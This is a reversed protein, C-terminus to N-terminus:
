NTEYGFKNLWREAVNNIFKIDNEDLVSKWGGHKGQRMFGINEAFDRGGYDYKMELTKMREFSSSAIADALIREDIEFGLHRYTESLTNQPSSKLNEYRIYIFRTEIPSCDFWGSVHDCWANIGLNPSRIFEKIGGSYNGFTSLFNFYSVLVDRPDRVVYIVNKYNLNLVSHSKIMRSGPFPLADEKIKRTFHVDPILSHINYFTVERDIGSMKLNINALLFDMWTAGSKPYSVVYIDDHLAPIALAQRSKWSAIERLIHMTLSVFGRAVSRAQDLAKKINVRDDMM